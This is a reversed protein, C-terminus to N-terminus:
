LRLDTVKRKCILRMTNLLDYSDIQKLKKKREKQLKETVLSHKQFLKLNNYQGEEEFNQEMIM